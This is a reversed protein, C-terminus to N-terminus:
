LGVRRPSWFRGYTLMRPQRFDSIALTLANEFGELIKNLAQRGLDTQVRWLSAFLVAPFNEFNVNQIKHGDDVIAM